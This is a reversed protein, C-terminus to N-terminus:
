GGRFWDGMPGIRSRSALAFALLNVALITAVLGVARPDVPDSDLVLRLVAPGLTRRESFPTLLLAPSLNTSALALALLSPLAPLAGIGGGEGARSARRDSAGMVRAADVRAPRILGRALEAGRALMPLMGAALALALMLGPSRAPSLELAVWRLSRGVMGGSSDALIAVLWPTALAGVGLALPPVCEFLRAALRVVRRGPGTPSRLLGSLIVAVVAVALGGAIASNAAWSRAEPDDVWRPVIASWSGPSAAQGARFTRFVFAVVPGVAFLGWALLVLRSLWARRFGAAKTPAVDISGARLPVPGGWWGIAVRGVGAIAVALLALSAARTPQDLRTASALIQIALTRDLGLVLPGAPEVLALTFVASTARAVEPRLIPWVVERWARRRSAGVARAAESWSPEVRRMAAETALAVLPSGGALGVWVLASWRAMDECSVGLISRAALWEWGRPGGLALDVGPAILLPGAALPVMALAWLPWRGWFRWRGAISALGMGIVMSGCAVLGAAAASNRACTWVFPDFAALAIPFASVRPSGDPGRDLLASPWSALSPILLAVLLLGGLVRIPWRHWGM